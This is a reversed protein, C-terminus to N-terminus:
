GLGVIQGLENFIYNLREAAINQAVGHLRKAAAIDNGM